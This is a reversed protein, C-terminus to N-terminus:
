VMQRRRVPLRQGTRVPKAFVEDEWAQPAPGEKERQSFPEIQRGCLAKFGQLRAQEPSLGHWHRRAAGGRAAPRQGTM